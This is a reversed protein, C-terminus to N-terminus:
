DSEYFDLDCVTSLKLLLENSLISKKYIPNKLLGCSKEM